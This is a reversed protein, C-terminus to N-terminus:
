LLEEGYDKFHKDIQECFLKDNLDKAYQYIEKKNLYSLKYKKASTKHNELLVKASEDFGGFVM